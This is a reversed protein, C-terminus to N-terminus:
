GTESDDQSADPLYYADRAYAPGKMICVIGCFLGVGLVSMWHLLLSGLVAYQFLLAEKMGFGLLGAKAFVFMGLLVATGLLFVQPLKKLVAWERGPPSKQSGQLRTFPDM